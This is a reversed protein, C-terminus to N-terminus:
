GKKKTLLEVITKILRILWDYQQEPQIRKKKKVVAHGVGIAGVSGGLIALGQGIASTNPFLSLVGGIVMIGAGLRRKFGTRQWFHLKILESTTVLPVEKENPNEIPAKRDFRGKIDKTKKVKPDLEIHFHTKESVVDYYDGPFTKDMADALEAKAKPLLRDYYWRRIDAAKDQYHLSNSHQRVSEEKMYKWGSPRKEVPVSGWHIGDNGSTIVMDTGTIRRHYSDFTALQKKLIQNLNTVHVSKDKLKM